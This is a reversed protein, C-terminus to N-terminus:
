LGKVRRHIEKLLKKRREEIFGKFNGRKLEDYAKRSIFHTNLTKLLEKEDNGHGKKFEELFKSPKKHRKIVRNTEVSLLTRNLVSHIGQIRRNPAQPFIHDVDCDNLNAPQGTLFDKAGKNSILCMLGRFIASRTDRTDLEEQILAVKKIWKPELDKQLWKTIDKVDQYTTSDVASDYRNDFVSSWYWRNLKKYASAGARMSDLEKLLVALPVLMPPYPIRRPKIAGYTNLVRRYAKVIYRTAQQWHEKFTASDLKGLIDLMTGKRPEKGQFLTVMRLISEPKVVTAADTKHAKEFKEWDKRLDIKPKKNYLRAAALDFLSLNLGMRNIREFISVVKENKLSESLRVIPVRFREFTTYVQKILDRDKGRWTKQSGHIWDYFFNRDRLNAFPIAKNEQILSEIEAMRKKDRTSVGIVAEQLEGKITEELLWFFRHPHKSKKLRLDPAYLAYFLSSIRQQGDLVLRVLMHNKPNGFGELEKIGEVMKYDFMPKRPDTVLVLFTGIFFGQLISILLEEVKDKRWVFSRQFDPIVIKGDFSDEVVRLLDEMQPVPDEVRQNQPM